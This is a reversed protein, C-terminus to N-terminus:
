ATRCVYSAGKGARWERAGRWKCSDGNYAPAGFATEASFLNSFVVRRDSSFFPISLCRPCPRASAWAPSSLYLLATISFPFRFLSASVSMECGETRFPPVFGGALFGRLGSVPCFAVSAERKLAFLACGAISGFVTTAFFCPGDGVATAAEACESAESELGAGDNGVAADWGGAGKAEWLIAPASVVRDAATPGPPACAPAAMGSRLRLRVGRGFPVGGIQAGEPWAGWFPVGFGLALTECLGEEPRVGWPLAGSGLVLSRCRWM